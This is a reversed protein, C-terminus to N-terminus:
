CVNKQHIKWDSLGLGLESIEYEYQEITNEIMSCIITILGSIVIGNRVKRGDKTLFGTDEKVKRTFGIYRFYFAAIGGLFKLNILWAEM